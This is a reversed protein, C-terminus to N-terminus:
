ATPSAMATPRHRAAARPLIPPIEASSLRGGQMVLVGRVSDFTAAHDARALTTDLGSRIFARAGSFLRTAATAGGPGRRRHRSAYEQRLAQSGFFPRRRRVPDYVM